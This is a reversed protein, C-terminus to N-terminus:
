GGNVQRLHRLRATEVTGFDTRVTEVTGNL